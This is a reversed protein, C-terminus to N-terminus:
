LLRHVRSDWKNRAINGALSVSQDPWKTWHARSTCVTRLTYAHVYLQMFNQLSLHLQVTSAGISNWHTNEKSQGRASQERSQLSFCGHAEVSWQTHKSEHLRALTHIHVYGITYCYWHIIDWLKCKRLQCASERIAVQQLFAQTWPRDSLSITVVLSVTQAIFWLCCFFHSRAWKAAM